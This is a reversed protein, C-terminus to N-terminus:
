VRTHRGRPAAAPPEYVPRLLRLLWGLRLVAGVMVSLPAVFSGLATTPPIVAVQAANAVVSAGALPVQRRAATLESQLPQTVAQVFYGAMIAAALGAVVYGNPLLHALPNGTWDVSTLAAYPVAVTALLATYRLRWRGAAVGDGAVAAEMSRPGTISLLGQGVVQIPRAVTRAGEVLGVVTLGLLVEIVSTALYSFAAGSLGAVLLWWGIRLIARRGLDVATRHRWFGSVALGFGLSLCNAALLAGYPVLAAGGRHLVLMGAAVGVVQVASVAAATWSRDAMHLLRRLHDQIPSVVAAGAGTLAVAWFTAEPVKGRVQWCGAVVVISTAAAVLGGSILTSRMVGPRAARREDLAVVEAPNFVLYAPVQTALVFAAFSLSFMGLTSPDFARVAYVQLAFTALSSLGADLQGATVLRLLALRRTV